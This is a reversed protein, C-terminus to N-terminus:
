DKSLISTASVQLSDLMMKFGNMAEEMMDKEASNTLPPLKDERKKTAAESAAKSLLDLEAPSLNTRLKM